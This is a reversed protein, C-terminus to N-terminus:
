IIVACCGHIKGGKEKNKKGGSPATLKESPLLLSSPHPMSIEQDSNFLAVAATILDWSISITCCKVVYDIGM